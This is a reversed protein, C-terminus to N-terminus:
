CFFFYFGVLFVVFDVDSIKWGQNEMERRIYDSLGGRYVEIIIQQLSSIARIHTNILNMAEIGFKPNDLAECLKMGHIRTMSITLTSLNACGSRIIALTGLSDDKFAINDPALHPFDSSGVHVHQIYGANKPGIQRLFSAVQESTCATFDFRNQAYFLSSAERHIDKNVHLLKPTLNYLRPYCDIWPDIPEQHLLVLEYIRNRIEGPLSFFNSSM